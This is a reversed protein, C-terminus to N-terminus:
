SYIGEELRFLIARIEDVGEFSKDLLSEPTADGISRNPSRFWALADDMGGFTDAAESILDLVARRFGFQAAASLEDIAGENAWTQLVRRGMESRPESIAVSLTKAEVIWKEVEAQSPTRGVLHKGANVEELRAQLNEARRRALEAVTDVGAAELLDSFESGVGKIRMLDARNVWELVRQSTVGTTEALAKRGAPTSAKEFLAEVTTVGAAELAAAYKEGIGEVKLIKTM